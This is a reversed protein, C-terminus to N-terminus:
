NGIRRFVIRHLDCAGTAFMHWSLRLYDEFRRVVAAGVLAGAAPRAAKLNALWTKLTRVYDARDNRLSVTEFLGEAAEIVESLFPLDSEPFVMEAIFRDFQAPTASGYAIMQLGFGGGPKLWRHARSFLARYIKVKEARTLGQRAFAEIAEISIIADFPVDPDYDVWSTLHATVGPVAEAAIYAAQSESLTLGVAEAAGRGRIFHTLAGGWGCGIDLVRAGPVFGLADAYYDIKQRQAAALGDAGGRWDACTYVLAPDLWLAFFANGVDYHAAIAAASAGNSELWGSASPRVGALGPTM